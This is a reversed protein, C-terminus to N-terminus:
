LERLEEKQARTQPDVCHIDLGFSKAYVFPLAEVRPKQAEAHKIAPIVDTLDSKDPNLPQGVTKRGVAFSSLDELGQEFLDQANGTLDADFQDQVDFAGEILLHSAGSEAFTKFTKANLVNNRISFDDHNTDGIFLLDSFQLGAQCCEQFSLRYGPGLDDM